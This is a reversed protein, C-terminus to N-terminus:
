RWATRWFRNVSVWVEDRARTMSVGDVVLDRVDWGAIKVVLDTEAVVDAPVPPPLPASRARAQSNAASALLHDLVPVGAFLSAGLIFTSRAMMM